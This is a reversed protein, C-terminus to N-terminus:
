KPVKKNKNAKRSINKNMQFMIKNDPFVTLLLSLAPKLLGVATM